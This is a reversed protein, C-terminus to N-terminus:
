FIVPNSLNSQWYWWQQTCLHQWEIHTDYHITLYTCWFEIKVANCFHSLHWDCNMYQVKVSSPSRCTQWKRSSGVHIWLKPCKQVRKAPQQAVHVHLKIPLHPWYSAYHCDFSLLWVTYKTPQSQVSLAHEQLQRMFWSHKEEGKGQGCKTHARIDSFYM